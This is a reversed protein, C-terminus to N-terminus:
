IWLPFCILMLYLSYVTTRTITHIADAKKLGSTLLESFGVNDFSVTEYALKKTFTDAPEKFEFSIDILCHEHSLTMGLEDPLIPGLVTQVKGRKATQDIEM